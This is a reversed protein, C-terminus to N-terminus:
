SAVPVLHNDWAVPHKAAGADTLVAGTGDTFALGTTTPAVGCLDPRHVTETQAGTWIVARGGRPATVACRTGDGSWAVSGVYGKFSPADDHGFTQAPTGRTHIALMAVRSNPDRQSQLGMAVAGDARAAIHRISLKPDDLEVTETVVLNDLYALNPRMTPINLKERGTAPHTRLGGNAVALGGNPLRIVEHPGIGGSAVEGMRTFGNEANWLGIRGDGTAYDNETTVLVRGGDIFAGHGYFHRGEPATLRSIVAGTTCDLVLAFTGPRRAFAVAIAREPHVAAAHGRDPLPVRFTIQGTSDIGFLAYKDMVERAAALFAPTGVAAWGPVGLLSAAGTTALFSRRSLM